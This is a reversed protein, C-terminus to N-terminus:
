ALIAPVNSWPAQYSLSLSWLVQNWKNMAPEIRGSKNKIERRIVRVPAPWRGM